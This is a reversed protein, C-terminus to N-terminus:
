TRVITTSEAPPAPAKEMSGAGVANSGTMLLATRPPNLPTTPSV